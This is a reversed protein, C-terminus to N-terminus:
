KFAGHDIKVRERVSSIEVIDSLEVVAPVFENTTVNSVSASNKLRQM